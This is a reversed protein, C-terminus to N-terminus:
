FPLSETNSDIYAQIAPDREYGGDTDRSLKVDQPDMDYGAVEYAQDLTCPVKHVVVQITFEQILHMFDFASVDTIGKQEELVRYMIQTCKGYKEDWDPQCEGYELPTLQNQEQCRKHEDWDAHSWESQDKMSYHNNESSVKFEKTTTQIYMRHMHIYMTLVM